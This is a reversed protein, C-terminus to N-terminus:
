KLLGDKRLNKLSREICGRWVTEIPTQSSHAVLESLGLFAYLIILTRDSQTLIIAPAAGFQVSSPILDDLAEVQLGPSTTPTMYPEAPDAKVPETEPTTSQKNVVNM